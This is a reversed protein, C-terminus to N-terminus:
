IPSTPFSVMKQHRMSQSSVIGFIIAIPSKNNLNNYLIYDCTKKQSLTSGIDCYMVTSTKVMDSLTIPPAFISRVKHILEGLKSPTPRRVAAAFSFNSTKFVKKVNDM